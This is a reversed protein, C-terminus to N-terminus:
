AETRELQGRSVRVALSLKLVEGPPSKSRSLVIRASPQRQM